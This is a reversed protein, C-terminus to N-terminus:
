EGFYEKLKENSHDKIWKIEKKGLKKRIYRSLEIYEIDKSRKMFNMDEFRKFPNSLINREVEKRTYNRLYLCQRKEVVLGEERRTEYYDIFYNVLDEIRIKGSKDIYEFIGKLLVPKYSYSMDMKEIFDMFKDKMNAPTILEWAFEKVYEQIKEEKFYKFTRSIGMPIELDPVIKGERIYREITESQVDVMRVFKILSIMDKAEEQWNFLDILEYDKISVPYDLFVDPKEGKYILDKELKRQKKSAIALGAPMYEAINFMRHVSYPMNFLNSNDIFDFVMLYEKGEALRMGRGLQQMYLTKSMTPRTMFLVETRPSDWGENLLDCACLVKINGYEYKELINKRKRNDMSGSVSEAKIGNEKFLDAIDKAHKVSACFIVTKQDKVFNLYTSLVVNNREPIFLKSELDQTNYKIGNIRVDSIDVNTKVRICRIPVLEGIEVATELDLKHAINQFIELLDEGDAREPTATLGLTFEPKFYSLIKKYTNATGHHAEDIVLYDFEEPDFEEINRSISQVSACVVYADKEKAEAVYMGTNADEWLEEFTDRAQTILEKTHGLFLTRKGLRKADSVATVTKGTGTAHFLLAISEGNDRMRQLSEIADEQHDKLEIVKGKQKPLYENLEKFEPFEGIFTLIEDKIKEPQDKLQMYAWRYIKWNDEIMSNQKLLDDYYKNSSIRDPNHYTEGDIEIAIKEGQSEMAFDIYRRNGYIDVFPHQISLYSSQEAGFVDCFLEIFLDEAISNMKGTTVTEKIM